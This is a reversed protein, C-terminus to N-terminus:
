QKLTITGVDGSTASPKQLWNYFTAGPMKVATTNGDQSISLLRLPNTLLEVPFISQVYFHSRGPNAFGGSTDTKMTIPRGPYTGMIRISAGVVPRSNTDVVRGKVAPVDVYTAPFCGTLAFVSSIVFLLTLGNRM